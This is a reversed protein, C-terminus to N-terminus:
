RSPPLAMAGTDPNLWVADGVRATGNASLIIETSRVATPPGDLDDVWRTRVRTGDLAPRLTVDAIFASDFHGDRHFDTLGPGAAVTAYGNSRPWSDAHATGAATRSTVTWHFSEPGSRASRFNVEHSNPFAGHVRLATVATALEVGSLGAASARVDGTDAVRYVVDQLRAAERPTLHGERMSTLASADADSLTVQRQAALHTIADANARHDGDLLLANFMAAGGCRTADGGTERLDDLQPTRSILRGVDGRDSLTHADEGHRRYVSAGARAPSLTPARQGARVDTFADGARPAEPPPPARPSPADTRRPLVPHSPRPGIRPSM